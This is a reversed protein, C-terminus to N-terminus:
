AKDPVGALNRFDNELVDRERMGRLTSQLEGNEDFLLLTVHPVNYRGAFAAGDQTAINAVLYVVACEELQSLAKRSERQLSRCTPCNPDHIQVVTPKGENGVRTLDHEAITAMVSRTGLVGAGAVAVAGIGGNRLLLLARRRTM